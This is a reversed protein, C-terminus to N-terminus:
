LSYIDAFEINIMEVKNDLSKTKKAVEIRKKVQAPLIIKFTTGQGVESQVEVIGGHLEVILKVLTLGIGTDRICIEIFNGKDFM